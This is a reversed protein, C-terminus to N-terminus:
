VWFRKLPNQYGMQDEVERILAEALSIDTGDKSFAGKLDKEISIFIENLRLEKGTAPDTAFYTRGEEKGMKQLFELWSNRRAAALMRLEQKKLPDTGPIPDFDSKDVKIEEGDEPPKPTPKVPVAGGHVIQDDYFLECPNHQQQMQEFERMFKEADSMPGDRTLAGQIDTDEDIFIDDLGLWKGTHPDRTLKDIPHTKGLEKMHNYWLNRRAKAARISEQRREKPTMRDLAQRYHRLNEQFEPSHTDGAATNDDDNNNDNNTSEQHIPPENDKDTTNTNTNTTTNSSTAEPAEHANRAAKAKRREEQMDVEEMPPPIYNEDDDDEESQKQRSTSRDIISQPSPPAMGRQSEQYMDELEQSSIGLDSPLQDKMKSADLNGQADVSDKMLAAIQDHTLTMTHGPKGSLQHEYQHQLATVEGPIVGDFMYQECLQMFQEAESLPEGEKAGYGGIDTDEDVFFEALEDASHKQSNVLYEYWARRRAKARIVLQKTRPRKPTGPTYHPDLYKHVDNTMGMATEMHRLLQEAPTQAETAFADVIEADENCFIADIRAHIADKDNGKFLDQVQPLQFLQKVGPAEQVTEHTKLLEIIGSRRLAAEERAKPPLDSISTIITTPTPSPKSTSTSTTTTNNTNNNSSPQGLPGQTSYPRFSVTVVSPHHRKPHSVVRQSVIRQIPCLSTRLRPIM